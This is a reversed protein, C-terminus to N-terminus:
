DLFVSDGTGMHCSRLEPNRCITCEALEGSCHSLGFIQLGMARLQSVTTEIRGSDAEVLHTGGFVAYIPLSLAKHVRETMALIGPHSCGVLVVLKGGIDIAMCIEDRFDDRIFGQATRRVFREPITEFSHIRPFDAVLFIGPAIETLDTVERRAVGHAELFDPGFGASLDTYKLGDFAFKPEFFNPGTYLIKSGCGSELLDRYGAAHDYHSHSLVVADLDRVNLGLRHANHWPNPGSGCDFLLRCDERQVLYSLGHENILAKHESPKNDMLATIRVM